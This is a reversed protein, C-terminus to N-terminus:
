QNFANCSYLEEVLPLSPTHFKAELCTLWADFAELDGPRDGREFEVIHEVCLNIFYRRDTEELRWAFLIEYDRHDPGSAEVFENYDTWDRLFKSSDTPCPVDKAQTTSCGTLILLAFALSAKLITM